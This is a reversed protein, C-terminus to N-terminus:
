TRKMTKDMWQLYNTSGYEIPLVIFEPVEYPHSALLTKELDVLKEQRTKMIVLVESAQTIEGNWIYISTLLSTINTCAVLGLETFKVAAAEASSQNPYTSMVLSYLTTAM